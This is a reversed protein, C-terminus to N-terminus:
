AASKVRKAKQSIFYKYGVQLEKRLVKDKVFSFSAM